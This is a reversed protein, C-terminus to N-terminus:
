RRRLVLVTAASVLVVAVVVAAIILGAGSGGGNAAPAVPPTVLAMDGLMTLNAAYTDPSSSGLPTTEAGNWRAGDWVELTPNVVGAPGRLVVTIQQGTRLPMPTGGPVATVAFRYVNGAISGAAPAVAPPEVPRVVVRVGTAGPPVTFAGQAALLQAQAPQEDTTEAIAPSQGAELTLTVDITGPPKTNTFGGPPHLYRYHEAIIPGGDYLPPASRPGLCWALAILAAGAALTAAARRGATM